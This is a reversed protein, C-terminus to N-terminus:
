RSISARRFRRAGLLAGILAGALLLLGSPGGEHGSTAAPLTDTEPAAVVTVTARMGPHISCIYAYTGASGFTVSAQENPGLKPTRWAGDVAVADHQVTDKNVWTVQSGATVTVDPPAFAFGEMTVTQDAANAAAPLALSLGLAAVLIARRATAM